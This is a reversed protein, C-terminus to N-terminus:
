NLLLRSSFMNLHESIIIPLFIPTGTMLFLHAYDTGLNHVCWVRILDDMQCSAVVAMFRLPLETENQLVEGTKNGLEQIRKEAETLANSLETIRQMQRQSVSFTLNSRQNWISSSRPRTPWLHGTVLSSLCCATQIKFWIINHYHKRTVTTKTRNPLSIFRRCRTHSHIHARAYNRTSDEACERLWFIMNGENVKRSIEAEVRDYDVQETTGKPGTSGRDGKEGRAGVPGRKGPVGQSPTLLSTQLQGPCMSDYVSGLRTCLPQEHNQSSVASIISLVFVYIM